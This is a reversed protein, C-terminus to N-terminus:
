SRVLVTTRRWTARALGDRQMGLRHRERAVVVDVDIHQGGVARCPFSPDLALDGDDAVVDQCAARERRQLLEVGREQGPQGLAPGADVAGMALDDSDPRDAVVESQPGQRGSGVQHGLTVQPVDALVAQDCEVAVEVREGGALDAVVLEDLDPGGGRGDGDVGSDRARGAGSEQGGVRPRDAVSGPDHVLPVPVSQGVAGQAAGGGAVRGGGCQRGSRQRDLLRARQGGQQM